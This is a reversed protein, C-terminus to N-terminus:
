GGAQEDIADRIAQLEAEKRDLEEFFAEERERFAKEDEGVQRSKLNM